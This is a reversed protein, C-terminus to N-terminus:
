PELWPRTSTCGDPCTKLRTLNREDLQSRDFRLITVDRGCQQCRFLAMFVWDGEVRQKDRGRWYYVGSGNDIIATATGEGM